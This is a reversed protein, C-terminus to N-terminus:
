GIWSIENDVTVNYFHYTIKKVAHGEDHEPYLM